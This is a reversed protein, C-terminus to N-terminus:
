AVLELTSPEVNFIAEAIVSAAKAKAKEKGTVNQDSTIRSGVLWRNSRSHVFPGDFRIRARFRDM